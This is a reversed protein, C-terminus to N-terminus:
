QTVWGNNRYWSVVDALTERVPRFETALERKSKTHDFRTREREDAMVRATALSLLVPRGTTRAWLENLFALTYILPFPIASTPAKVGSVQELAQLLDRMTMHRGAVTYREGRGGNLAAAYLGEAVDRADVVSFTAPAVGPLKRRLFDLVLQGSSTPGIDGPGFMWGPLVMCAWMDPHRALFDDVVRDCLIKSRYYDNAEHEERRMTEDVVAGRPGALVAISSTQVFRRVGAIYASELLSKTGVVNVQYLQEWHNGGAYSDRFYAATHFVVDVGRLAEAFGALDTMDGVVTEVNALEGFQKNAKERSRALAKVPIGHSALLRVLNAGLLGTSGTVLASIITGRHNSVAM